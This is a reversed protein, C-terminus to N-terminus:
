GVSESMELNKYIKVKLILYAFLKYTYIEIKNKIQM